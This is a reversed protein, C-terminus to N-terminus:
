SVPRLHDLWAPESSHLIQCDHDGHIRAVTHFWSVLDRPVSDMWVGEEGFNYQDVLLLISPHALHSLKKVKEEVRERILLPLEERIEGGWKGKGSTSWTAGVYHLESHAKEITWHASTTDLLTEEPFSQHLQSRKMYSIARVMLEPRRQSLDGIGDLGLVFAGSILSQAQALQKLEDKFDMLAAQVHPETFVRGDLEVRDTVRTVEVPYAISGITVEYDPPNAGARWLLKAGGVRASLFRSFSERAYEEDLRPM